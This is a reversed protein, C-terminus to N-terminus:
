ETLKKIEKDDNKIKKILAKIKEINGKIDGLFYSVGFGLILIIISTFVFFGICVM